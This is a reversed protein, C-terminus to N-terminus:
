VLWYMTNFTISKMISFTGGDQQKLDIGVENCAEVFCAATDLYGIHLLTKAVDYFRGESLM